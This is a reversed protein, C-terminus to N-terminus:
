NKWYELLIIVIKNKLKYNKIIHKIVSDYFDYASFKDNNFFRQFRREISSFQVDSWPDKLKKIIDTTVVSESKIMGFIIDPIIKLHPKSINHVVNQLFNSLESTIQKQSNYVKFM